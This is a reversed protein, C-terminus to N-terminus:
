EDRVEAERMVCGMSVFCSGYVQKPVTVDHTAIWKLSNLFTDESICRVTRRLMVRMGLSSVQFARTVAGLCRSLVIWCLAVTYVGELIHV